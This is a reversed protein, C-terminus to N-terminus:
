YEQSESLKKKGGKKKKAPLLEQKINPMVGAQVIVVKSLLRGLEDDNKIALMIHRPIIRQKKNDKAANGALELLEATLYEM